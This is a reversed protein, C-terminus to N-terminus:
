ASTVICAQKTKSRIARMGKCDIVVREREGCKGRSCSGNEECADTLVIAWPSKTGDGEALLDMVSMHLGTSYDCEIDQIVNLYVLPNERENELGVVHFGFSSQRM